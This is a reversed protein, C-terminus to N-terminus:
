APRLDWRLSVERLNMPRLGGEGDTFFLNLGMAHAAVVEAKAGASEHWDAMVAIGTCDKLLSLDHRMYWEKSMEQDGGATEAPSIVAYGRGRLAAAAEEFAPYNFDELGTM